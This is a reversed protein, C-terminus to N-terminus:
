VRTVDILTSDIVAQEGAGIVIDAGSVPGADRSIELRQINHGGISNVPTSQRAHLVNDGVDQGEVVRGNITFDGAYYDVVAQKIQAEGDSPFNTDAVVDVEFTIPVDIPRDFRMIYTKGTDPDLHPIVVAGVMGIGGGVNELLAAAIDSDSGGRVIAWVHQPEVGTEADTSGTNNAFLNVSSVGEVETLGKYIAPESCKGTQKAAVDRRARLQPDTEETRGVSAAAPNTVSGWSYEPTIIKTLTGPEATIAGDTVCTVSISKTELGLLTTESDTAWQYLEDPDSILAGAPILSPAALATANVAATSYRNENRSLGNFQVLSSLFDGSSASPRFANAVGELSENQEAIAASVLRLLHGSWSDPDEVRAGDGFVAKFDTIAKDLVDQYRDIELGNENFSTM